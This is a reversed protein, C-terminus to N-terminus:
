PSGSANEMDSREALSRAATAGDGAPGSKAHILVRQGEQGGEDPLDHDDVEPRGVDAHAREDAVVGLEELQVVGVEVVEAVALRGALDVHVIRGTQADAAVAGAQQHQGASEDRAINRGPGFM